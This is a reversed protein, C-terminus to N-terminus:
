GSFRGLAIPMDPANGVLASQAPQPFGVVASPGPRFGRHGAVLADEPVVEMGALQGTLQSLSGEADSDEVAHDISSARTGNADRSGPARTPESGRRQGRHV